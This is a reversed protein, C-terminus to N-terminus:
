FPNFASIVESLPENSVESDTDSLIHLIREVFPSIKSLQNPLVTYSEVQESKKKKRKKKKYNNTKIVLIM